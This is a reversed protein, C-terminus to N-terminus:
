LIAKVQQEKYHLIHTNVTLYPSFNHINKSYIGTKSVTVYYSSLRNNMLQEIKCRKSGCLMNIYKM